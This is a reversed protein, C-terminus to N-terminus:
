KSDDDKKATKMGCAAPDCGKKSTKSGCTAACKSGSKTSTTVKADSVEAPYGAKVVAATLTEPKVKASTYYVEATGKELNVSVDNVGEVDALTKTVHNVCAGCTMNSVNLMVMEGEANAKTATTTTEAKKKTASNPCQAMAVSGLLFM